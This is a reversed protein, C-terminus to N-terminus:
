KTIQKIVNSTKHTQKQKHKTRWTSGWFKGWPWTTPNSRQSTPMRNNWKAIHQRSGPNPFNSRMRAKDAPGSKRILKKTNYIVFYCNALKLNAHTRRAKGQKSTIPHTWQCKRRKSAPKILVWSCTGKRMLRLWCNQHRTLSTAVKAESLKRSKDSDHKRYRNVNNYMTWYKEIQSM